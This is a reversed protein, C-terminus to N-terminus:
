NFAYRYSILLSLGIPFIGRKRSLPNLPHLEKEKERDCNSIKERISFRISQNRSVSCLIPTCTQSAISWWNRVQRDRHEEWVQRKRFGAEDMRRFRVPDAASSISTREVIGGVARLTKFSGDPTIRRAIATSIISAHRRRLAQLVSWKAFGSDLPVKRAVGNVEEM